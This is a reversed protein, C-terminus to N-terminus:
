APRGTSTPAPDLGATRLADLGRSLRSKVTGAPVGLASAIEAETLQEYFRLVLVQRQAIPLRRLAALLVVREDTGDAHDALAADEDLPLELRRRRRWNSAANVVARRVYPHPDDAVIGRWKPQCRVLATQVLDEAETWDGTLLYALRRLPVFRAAVYDEFAVQV